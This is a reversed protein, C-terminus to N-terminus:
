PENETTQTGIQVQQAPTQPLLPEYNQLFANDRNAISSVNSSPRLLKEAEPNAQYSDSVPRLLIEPLEMATSPRLLVDSAQQQQALREQILALSKQAEERMQDETDRAKILRNLYSLSERNGIRGLVRVVQLALFTDYITRFGYPSLIPFLARHLRTYQRGNLYCVDEPQMQRLLRKVADSVGNPVDRKGDFAPSKLGSNTRTNVVDLADVLAGLAQMDDIEDLVSIIATRRAVDFYSLQFLIFSALM